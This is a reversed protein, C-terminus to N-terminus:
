HFFEFAVDQGKGIATKVLVAVFEEGAAIVTGAFEPVSGGSVENVGEFSMFVGNIAHSEIDRKTVFYTSARKIMSGFNPAGDSSLLNSSEGSVCSFNDGYWKIRM